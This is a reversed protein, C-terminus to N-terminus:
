RKGLEYRRRAAQRMQRKDRNKDPITEDRERETGKGRRSRGGFASSAARNVGSDRSHMTLPPCSYYSVLKFFFFLRAGSWRRIRWKKQRKWQMCCGAQPEETVCRNILVMRLDDWRKLGGDKPRYRSIKKTKM